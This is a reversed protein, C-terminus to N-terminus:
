DDSSNNERSLIEFARKHAKEWRHANQTEYVIHKWKCPLNDSNIEERWNTTALLRDVALCYGHDNETLTYHGKRQLLLKVTLPFVWAVMLLHESLPWGLNQNDTTGKHASENRVSYLEEIWKRHVFWQRQIDAYDLDIKIKKRERLADRVTVNGYSSFLVGFKRSLEYAKRRGRCKFLQEFAAGMLLAETNEAMLDDDTNALSVFPLVTRLRQTTVCGAANGADLAELFPQDVTAPHNLSCQLPVSFKVKGHRYGGDLERSDRRRITLTVHEVRGSFHQGVPRFATSNVYPGWSSCYNNSAWCALFLLSAAWGVNPFDNDSLNCGRNPITAVVCNDIPRGNRDVYSSLITDLADSKDALVASVVGHNRWPVFEIGAVRYAEKLRLWPLFAVQNKTTASM